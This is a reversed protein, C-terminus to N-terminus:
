LCVRIFCVQMKVRLFPKGKRWPFCFSLPFIIALPLEKLNQLMMSCLFCCCIDPYFSLATANIIFQTEHNSRHGLMVGVRFHEALITCRTVPPCQRKELRTTVWSTGM